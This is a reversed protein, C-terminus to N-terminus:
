NMERGQKKRKWLTINIGNILQAWISDNCPKRDIIGAINNEGKINVKYMDAVYKQYTDLTKVKQIVFGM